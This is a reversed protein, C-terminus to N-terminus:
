YWPSRVYLDTFSQILLCEDIKKDSSSLVPCAASSSSPLYKKLMIYKPRKVSALNIYVYNQIKGNVSISDKVASFKSASTAVSVSSGLFSSNYSKRLIFNNYKLMKKYTNSSFQIIELTFTHLIIQLISSVYFMYKPM